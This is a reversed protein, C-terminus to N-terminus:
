ESSEAIEEPQIIVGRYVTIHGNIVFSEAVTDSAADGRGNNIPNVIAVRNDTAATLEYSYVGDQVPAGELRFVPTGSAAFITTVTGDPAVVKLTANSLGQWNEFWLASSNNQEVPEAGHAIAGAWLLGAM